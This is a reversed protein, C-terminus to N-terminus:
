ESLIFLERSVYESILWKNQPIKIEKDEIIVLGDDFFSKLKKEFVKKQKMTLCRLLENIEVGKDTRLGLMIRENFVDLSSLNEEEFYIKNTNVKNCYITNNSINWRRKKATFSHASPGIGVYSQQKWYNSNHFSNFGKKSFNSIEYHKFNAKKLTNSIWLFEEESKEDEIEIFKNKQKLHGFYTGNEITLHYCSIHTPNLDIIELLEAKYDRKFHSPFGYIFDLSLNNFGVSKCQKIAKITQSKSHARNMWKLFKDNMSQVGISLRNFGLQKYQELKKISIDEPNIEITIEKLKEFKIEEKIADILQNLEKKGLVSPTGGGFYLSSFNLKFEKKRLKIEKVMAELVKDKNKLATSFHFDCYHCAQSCFPIHIYIGSM